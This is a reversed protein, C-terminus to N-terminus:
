QSRFDSYKDLEIKVFKSWVAQQTKNISNDSQTDYANQMVALNKNAQEHVDRLDQKINNSIKLRSINYRLQRVHLETIDFHLQEHALIHDDGKDKLYWSKDPYFHAEVEANFDIIKENSQSVSFSFTIGSATVAVADTNQEVQGKFDSWTLKKADSWSITVEDNSSANLFFFFIVLLRPLM